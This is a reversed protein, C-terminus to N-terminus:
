YLNSGIQKPYLLKDTGRDRVLSNDTLFWPDPGTAMEMPALSYFYIDQFPTETVCWSWRRRAQGWKLCIWTRGDLALSLSLFSRQNRPEARGAMISIFCHNAGALMADSRDSEIGQLERGGVWLRRERRLQLPSAPRPAAPDGVRRGGDGGRRGVWAACRLSRDCVLVVLARGELPTTTRTRTGGSVGLASSFTL